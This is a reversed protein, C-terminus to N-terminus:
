ETKFVGELRFIGKGESLWRKEYGTMINDEAFKSHHLDFTINRLLFGNQSLSELSFKFFNYDDTKLHIEGGEILIKKYLELFDKHTLRRKIHKRKTWPDSFNLYIRSVRDDDFYERLNRADGYIFGINPLGEEKAKSVPYNLAEKVKDMGIFNIDHNERALKLIFDSRGTGIELHIPHNNGFFNVWNVKDELKYIVLPHKKFKEELHPKNRM